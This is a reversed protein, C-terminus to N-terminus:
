WGTQIEYIEAACSKANESNLCVAVFFEGSGEEDYAELKGTCPAIVMRNEKNISNFTEVRAAIDKVAKNYGKVTALVRNSPQNNENM